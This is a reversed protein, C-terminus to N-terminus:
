PHGHNRSRSFPVRLPGGTELTQRFICLPVPVWVMYHLLSLAKQDQTVKSSVFLAYAITENTDKFLYSRMQVRPDVPLQMFGGRQGPQAGRGVQPGPEQALTFQIQVLGIQFCLVVLAIRIRTRCEM